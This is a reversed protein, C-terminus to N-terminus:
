LERKRGSEVWFWWGERARAYFMYAILRRTKRM